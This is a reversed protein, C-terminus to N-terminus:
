AKPCEKQKHGPEGCIACHICICVNNNMCTECRPRFRVRAPGRGAGGGQFGGAGGQFGGVGGANGQSMFKKMEAVEVKLVAVEEVKAALKQNSQNLKRIEAVLSKIDDDGKTSGGQVSNTKAQVDTSEELLKLYEEERTVAANVERFLEFDKLSTNKLVNGLELRVTNSAIGVSIAHFCQKNVGEADVSGGEDEAVAIIDDQLRTM